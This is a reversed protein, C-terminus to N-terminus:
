KFWPITKVEGRRLIKVNFACIQGSYEDVERAAVADAVDKKTISAKELLLRM